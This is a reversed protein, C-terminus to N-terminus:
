ISKWKKIVDGISIGTAKSIIKIVLQSSIGIEREDYDSFIRGRLLYIIGSVIEENEKKLKDLLHAVIETKELRKSTKELKDYIETLEKYLM